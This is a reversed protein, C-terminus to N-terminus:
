ELDENEYIISNNVDQPATVNITLGADPVMEVPLISLVGSFISVNQLTKPQYGDASLEVNYTSYAQEPSNPVLTYAKDPAELTIRETQGSRGTKISFDSGLNIEDASYIRVIVNPVPLAESATFARIILYGESTNLM